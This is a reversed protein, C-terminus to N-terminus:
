PREADGSGNCEGDGDCGGDRQRDLNSVTEGSRAATGTVWPPEANGGGISAVMKM